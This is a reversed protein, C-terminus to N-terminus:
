NVSSRKLWQYHSLVKEVYRRTEPFPPVGRYRAVNRPGANFAALALRLNGRYRNILKRLCRCAGMLNDVSHYPSQIECEDAFQPMVQMLGM